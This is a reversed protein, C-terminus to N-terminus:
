FPEVEVTLATLPKNPRGDPRRPRSQSVANWALMAEASSPFQRANARVPTLRITGGFAGNIVVSGDDEFYSERRTPVADLDYTEVWLPSAFELGNALAAVKIIATM